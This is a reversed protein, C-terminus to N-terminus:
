EITLLDSVEGQSYLTGSLMVVRGVANLRELRKCVYM